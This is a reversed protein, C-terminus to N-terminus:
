SNVAGIARPRIRSPLTSASITADWPSGLQFWTRPSTLFSSLRRLIASGFRRSAQNRRCIRRGFCEGATISGPASVMQFAGTLRRARLGVAPRWHFLTSGEFHPSKTPPMPRLNKQNRSEPLGASPAILCARATPPRALRRSSNPSRCNKRNRIKRLADACTAVAILDAVLRRSASASASFCVANRLPLPLAFRFAVKILQRQNRYSYVPSPLPSM